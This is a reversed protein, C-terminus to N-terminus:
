QCPVPLERRLACEVLGIGSAHALGYAFLSGGGGGRQGGNRGVLDGDPAHLQRRCGPLLLPLHQPQLDGFV